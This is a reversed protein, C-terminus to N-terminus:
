GVRSSGSFVGWLLLSVLEVLVLAKLVEVSVVKLPAGQLSVCHLLRGDEFVAVQQYSTGVLFTRRPVLDGAPNAVGWNGHLSICTAIRGYDTPILSDPHLYDVQPDSGASATHTVLLTLWHTDDSSSSGKSGQQTLSLFLLIMTEVKLDEHSGGGWWNFGWLRDVRPRGDDGSGTALGGSQYGDLRMLDVTKEVMAPPGTESRSRSSSVDCNALHVCAGESWVITPGDLVLFGLESDRGIGGGKRRGKGKRKATVAKFQGYTELQGSTHDFMLLENTLNSPCGKYTVALFPVRVGQIQDFAVGCASVEGVGPPMAVAKAVEFQWQHDCNQLKHLRLSGGLSVVGGSWQLMHLLGTAESDEM